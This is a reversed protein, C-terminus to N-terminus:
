FENSLRVRSHKNRHSIFAVSHWLLRKFRKFCMGDLHMRQRVIEVYICWDVTSNLLFRCNWQQWVSNNNRLEPAFLSLTLSYCLYCYDRSPKTSFTSSKTALYQYTKLLGGCECRCIWFFLLLLLWFMFKLKGSSFLRELKQKSTAENEVGTQMWIHQKETRGM